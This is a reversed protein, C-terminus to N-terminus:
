NEPLGQDIWDAIIQRTAGPLQGQPPMPNTSSNIRALLSRTEVANKVDSYTELSMPADNVPPNSHCSLCNNQIIAKIDDEYNRPMAMSIPDDDAIMNDDTMEDSSSSKSCGILILLLTLMAGPLLKKM